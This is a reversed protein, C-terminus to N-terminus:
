IFVYDCNIFSLCILLFFFMVAAVFLTDLCFFVVFIKCVFHKVEVFM